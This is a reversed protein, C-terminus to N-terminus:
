VLHMVRVPVLSRSWVRTVEGLPFAAM